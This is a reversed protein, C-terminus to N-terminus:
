STKERCDTEVMGFTRTYWVRARDLDTAEIRVHSIRRLPIPGPQPAVDSPDKRICLELTNGDPDRVFLSEKIPSSAPYDTVREWSLQRKEAEDAAGSLEDAAVEFGWM